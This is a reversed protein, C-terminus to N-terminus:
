VKKYVKKYHYKYVKINKGNAYLTNQIPEAHFWGQIKETMQPAASPDVVEGQVTPVGVQPDERPPSVVPITSNITFM